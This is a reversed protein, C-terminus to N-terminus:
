TSGATRTALDDLEARVRNEYQTFNFVKKAIGYARLIYRLTVTLFVVGILSAIVTSVTSIADLNINVEDNVVSVTASTNAVLGLIYDVVSQAVWLANLVLIRMGLFKLFELPEGHFRAVLTLEENLRDIRAQAQSAFRLSLRQQIWTTAIPSLISIPISIAIGLLFLTM